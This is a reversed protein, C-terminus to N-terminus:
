LTAYLIWDIWWLIGFFIITVLGIKIGRKVVRQRNLAQQNLAQQNLAQQYRFIADAERALSEQKAERALREREQAEFLFQTIKAALCESCFPGLGVGSDFRTSSGESYRCNIHCLECFQKSTCGVEQCKMVRVNSASCSPCVDTKLINQQVDGMVVSDSIDIGTKEETM